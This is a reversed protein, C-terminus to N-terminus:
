STELGGTEALGPNSVESLSAHLGPNTSAVPALIAMATRVRDGLSGSHEGRAWDFLAATLAGLVAGAAVRATLEDAGTGVLADVIVDETALNNQWIGARLTPHSAALNVRVRTTEDGPEDLGGWAELLGRRVRELSPLAPDQRAVAAGLMPDYPDDLVVSEKTPFNRFFTMHSVGVSSAIEEVTVEDYGRMSFLRIAEDQLRRRTDAAKSM